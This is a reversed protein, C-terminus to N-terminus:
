GQKGRGEDGKVIMRLPFFFMGGSGGFGKGFTMLRAFVRGELGEECVLGRGREGIVGGSHAEDVVVYGNGRVLMREVLEVIERLPALDGDMSYVGEVAVFVNRGGGAVGADRGLLLSLERKLDKVSNHAFPLTKRARSLRMGDHVSAHIFEDYLIVDGSQPVCSFFGANADYGSNFLLASEANHFAAISKELSTAYCSNGDLLRSGSSGLRFSASSSLEAIYNAKVIPSSSLSLFDNSSFDVVKHNEADSGTSSTTNTNTLPPLTLQRYSSTQKRKDLLSIM